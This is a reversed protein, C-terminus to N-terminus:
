QRRPVCGFETFQNHNHGKFDDRVNQNPKMKPVASILDYSSKKKQKLHFNKSDLSNESVSHLLLTIRDGFGLAWFFRSHLHM